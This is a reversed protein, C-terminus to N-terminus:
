AKLQGHLWIPTNHDHRFLAIRFLRQEGLDIAGLIFIQNL